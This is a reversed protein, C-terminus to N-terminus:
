ARRTSRRPTTTGCDPRTLIEAGVPPHIWDILTASPSSTASPAVQVLDVDVGRGAVAVRLLGDDACKGANPCSEVLRDLALFADSIILVPHQAIFKFIQVRLNRLHADLYGRFRIELLVKLL